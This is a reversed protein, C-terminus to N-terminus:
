LDFVLFMFSSSEYSDILTVPSLPLSASLWLHFPAAAYWLAEEVRLCCPPQEQSPLLVPPPLLPGFAPWVKILHLPALLLPASHPPLAPAPFSVMGCVAILATLHSLTRDVKDQKTEQCPACSCPSSCVRCSAKLLKEDPVRISM